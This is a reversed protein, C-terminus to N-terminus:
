WGVVIPLEVKLMNIVENVGPAAWTAGEAAEKEAWSRVAGKLTVIGDKVDVKIREAEIEARRKFAAEIKSKVDYSSVKQEVTVHNTVGKVGALFRVSNEAAQKQYFWPIKGERKVWGNEVTCTVAHPPVNVNWRLATIVANAIVADTMKHAPPPQVTLKDVVARVGKVRRSGEEAALKETYTAVHGTLTVIGDDVLVGINSSDVAPDWALEDVVDLQLHEATKMM